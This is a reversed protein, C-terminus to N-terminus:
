ALNEEVIETREGNESIVSIRIVDFGNRLLAEEVIKEGTMLLIEGDDNKFDSMEELYNINHYVSVLVEFTNYGSADVFTKTASRDSHQEESYEDCFMASYGHKCGDFLLIKEGTVVDEAYVLASSFDTSVILGYEELIDGYYKIFFKRNNVTSQIQGRWEIDLLNEFYSSSDYVVYKELYTPSKITNTM